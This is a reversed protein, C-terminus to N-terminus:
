TSRCFCGVFFVKRFGLLSLGVALLALVGPEPVVGGGSFPPQQQFGAVTPYVFGSAGVIRLNETGPVFNGDADALVLAPLFATDDYDARSLLSSQTFANADLTMRYNVFGTLFDLAPIRFELEQQHAGPTNFSATKAQGNVVVEFNTLTQGISTGEVAPLFYVFFATFTRLDVVEPNSFSLQDIWRAFARSAPIVAGGGSPSMSVASSSVRTADAQAHLKVGSSSDAPTVDVAARAFFSGIAGADAAQAAISQAEDTSGPVIIPNDILQVGGGSASVIGITAAHAAGVAWLLCIALMGITRLM